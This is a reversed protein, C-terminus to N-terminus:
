IRTNDYKNREKYDQLYLEATKIDNSQRQKDGATLLLVITNNEETFYIREGSAFKLESVGKKLNKYQGYLGLKLREIRVLIKAKVSNDLDNFWEDFPIKGNELQYKLITKM